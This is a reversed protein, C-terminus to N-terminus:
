KPTFRLLIVGVIGFIVNPLWVSIAAPWGANTSFTFAIKQFLIFCGCIALGLFIHLGIGGRVKRSAIAVGILTLIFASFPMAIRNWMELEHHVVFTSGKAKLDKIHQRLEFYNMSEVVNQRKGLDDPRFNIVTDLQNGKEIVEGSDKITRMVYNQVHWVGTISDYSAFDSTIKSRLEGNYIDEISFKYGIGTHNNLESFYIYTREDLKLHINKDMNRFKRGWIYKDEFELRTKNGEPITFNMLIFSGITLMTACALYPVLMRWFSVGSALIAVIETRFAMRSTFYLVSIFIILPSLLIMLHPVFNVYYDFVVASFPADKELFDDIKESIDFVITIASLILIMFFFTGLFKRAIYIDLKRFM